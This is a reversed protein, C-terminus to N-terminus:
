STLKSLVLPKCKARHKYLKIAQSLFPSPSAPTPRPPSTDRAGPVTDLPFTHLQLQLRKQNTDDNM